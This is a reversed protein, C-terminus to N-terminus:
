HRFRLNGQLVLDFWQGFPMMVFCTDLFTRGKTPEETSVAKSPILAGDRTPKPETQPIEAGEARFSKLFALGKTFVEIFVKVRERPISFERVLTNEFFEDEPIRKGKYFEEVKRFDEVKRFARLLAAQRQEPTGPAVVDQGIQELKVTANAGSGTVLQYQNASRVLNLFRWDNSKNFGVARALMDAKIPNGGNKDEIAKAIQIADELSNKPFSWEPGRAGQARKPMKRVTAANDQDSKM